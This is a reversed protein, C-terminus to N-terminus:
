NKVIIKIRRYHAFIVFLMDVNELTVAKELVM